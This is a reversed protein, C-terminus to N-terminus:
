TSPTGALNRALDQATNGDPVDFVLRLQRTENGGLARQARAIARRVLTTDAVEGLDIPLTPELDLRREDRPLNRAPTSDLLADALTLRLGCARQLLLDLGTTYDANRASPTGKTGGRSMWTVAARRGLWSLIFHADIPEGDPGHVTLLATQPAVPAMEYGDATARFRVSNSTGPTGAAEGFWDRLLAPLQNTTPDGRRRLVNIAIKAFRADYEVGDAIVRVDGTPLDARADRRPLMLIPNRDNHTVRCLFTDGAALELHEALRWDVIERVLDQVHPRAADPADFLTRFRSGEFAFHASGQGRKTGAWARLPNQRVMSELAAGNALSAGLEARLLPSRHAIRELRLALDTVECSGPLADLELMAQLALMKYSREMKTRELEHLFDQHSHLVAREDTGLDGMADVFAFWSPAARKLAGRTLVGSSFLESATPRRGNRERFEEYATRLKDEASTPALLRQLIDIAELEYTVECGPPLELEGARLRELAARLAQHGEGVDTFAGMLARAKELFCRHNGIYDIVQLREKGAATRLGRGLQQLWLVRSETPRLMMVTDVDPVDVGENFMDVSFVCALRGERLDDLANARPASTEGSHVAVSAVGNRTFHEAMFDAHTQSACFALTREGGHKRHQELANDARRQTALQRTLAAEDFRRSRWPIQAYDVDDPVGHYSFPCLRGSTVGEALDCRFVLNNGCLALLDAGDTREPTATLGLLFQPTFHELLARYTRAAAHHFEDVVIYDFADPAFARLHRARSLTQISAFLVDADPSKEAGTFRGLRAEPRIRRFTALAQALIEERHAVFLVREFARSDFASLWTKGLGTALVVLGAINGDERTARLADLAQQQIGHPEPPPESEPSVGAREATTAKRRARYRTIWAHDLRTTNPHGFLQEFADCVSDFGDNDRSRLVRYNWEVGNGLATRSLNSSGVFAIGEGNDLHFLYSKPHFSKGRTEFVRLDHPGDLDLLSALADPETADLYDGTVLRLRRGRHLHDDLYPRILAVGKTLAFAVAIDVQRAHPFYTALHALLPDSEGRILACPHPPSAPTPTHAHLRITLRDHPQQDPTPDRWDVGISADAHRARLADAAIDIATLLALKETDSAQRWTTIHRNPTVTAQHPRISCTCHDDQHLLDGPEEGV